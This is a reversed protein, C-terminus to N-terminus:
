DFEGALVRLILNTSIEISLGRRKVEDMVKADPIPKGDRQAKIVEIATTAALTLLEDDSMKKLKKKGM